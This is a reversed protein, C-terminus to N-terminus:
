GRNLKYPDALEGPFRELDREFARSEPNLSGVASRPAEGAGAADNDLDRKWAAHAHVGIGMDLAQQLTWEFVELFATMRGADQLRALPFSPRKDLRSEPIELGLAAELRRRLEDRCSRQHFPPYPVTTMLGFQIEVAANTGNYVAFPLCWARADKFGFYCAAYTAGSGYTKQLPPQHADAWAFLQRATCGAEDGNNDVLTSFWAERDWTRKSGSRRKAARAVETQGFLRPVLTQEGAAGVYQRLEVAYVEIPSLHENLFEVVRRLELPIEDAVFLLRLRRQALHEDVSAWFSDADITAFNEVEAAADVGERAVRAEFAARLQGPPSYAVANAAYDLMQGVVERRIRTDSARKVEVLTPIGHQDVFLHDLSWRDTGADGDAIGHERRVLLWRLPEEGESFEDGLLEPYRELLTQLEDESAYAAPRLEVLEGGNRQFIRESM